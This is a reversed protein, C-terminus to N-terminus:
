GRARGARIAAPDIGSPARGAATDVPACLRRGSAQPPVVSDERRQASADPTPGALPHCEDVTEQGPAPPLQREVLQSLLAILATMVLLVAPYGVYARGEWQYGMDTWGQLVEKLMSRQPLFISFVNSHFIFFGWPNDPRDDVWDTVSVLGRVMILPLVAILLLHLGEPVYERLDKRHNWLQVVLLALPFIALFAAYYASTFGGALSTLLLLLTWTWKRKGDQWRILLYWYLPIFFAYAMEFHGGMRDIQPSLLLIILSVMAAYWPPLAFRRLILFLFPVAALLSLIMTLNLIGVGNDSVPMVRDAAKLIQVYLPHSNIYQLHDGYPYNIGDHRIGRDYELYWSFNYYSKVADESHSFLYSNPESFVKGFRLGLILATAAVLALLALSNKKM